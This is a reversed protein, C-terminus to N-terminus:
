VRLYATGAIPQGHSIVVTQDDPYHIEAWLEQGSGDLVLVTPYDSLGHNITWTAAPTAQVFQYTPVGGGGANALEQYIDVIYQEWEYKFTRGSGLDAPNVATRIVNANASRLSSM